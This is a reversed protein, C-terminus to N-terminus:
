DTLVFRLRTYTRQDITRGLFVRPEFRWQRVASIAEDRFYHDRSADSVTIDSTTGAATVTFEVDVWGEIGRAAAVRPYTPAVYNVVKLDSIPIPNASEMAILRDDVASRAAVIASQDIAVPAAADIWTRAADTDIAELAQKSRALLETIFLDRAAATLADNPKTQIMKELHLRANDEPPTLLRNERMALEFSENLAVLPDPKPETDEEDATSEPAVNTAPPEIEPEPAPEPKPAAAAVRAALALAGKHLPLAGLIRQVTAKADDYRGQELAVTGRRLLEDAVKRLGEKAAASEPDDELAKSFLAWASYDEPEVLMGAEYALQAMRLPNNLGTSLETQAARSTGLAPDPLEGAPAPLAPAAGARWAGSESSTGSSWPQSILLWTLGIGAIVMGALLLLRDSQNDLFRTTTMHFGM